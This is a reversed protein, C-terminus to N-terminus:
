PRSNTENEGQGSTSHKAPDNQPHLSKQTDTEIIMLIMEDASVDTHIGEKGWLLERIFPHGDTIHLRKKDIIKLLNQKLHEKSIEHNDNFVDTDYFKDYERQTIEVSKMWGVPVIYTVKKKSVTMPPEFIEKSCDCFTGHNTYGCDVIVDKSWHRGTIPQTILADETTVEDDVDKDLPDNAADGGIENDGSKFHPRCVNAAPMTAGASEVMKDEEDMMQNYPDENIVMDDHTTATLADTGSNLKTLILEDLNIIPLEVSRAVAEQITSSQRTNTMSGRPLQHRLDDDEHIQKHLGANQGLRHVDVMQKIREQSNQGNMTFSSDTEVDKETNIMKSHAKSFISATSNTTKPWYERQTHKALNKDPKRVGSRSAPRRTGPRTSTRMKSNLTEKAQIGLHKDQILDEIPEAPVTKNEDVQTYELIDGATPIAEAIDIINPRKRCAL